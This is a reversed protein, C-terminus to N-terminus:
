EVAHVENFRCCAGILNADNHFRSGAVVARPLGFIDKDYIADTEERITRILLERASIGGGIVIKEPDFICQLNYIFRALDGAYNRIIELMGPDGQEALDFITYGTVENESKKLKKAAKRRLERGGCRVALVSDSHEFRDQNIHVYSFEGAFLHAGRYLKGNQILAGGIGTGLILVAGTECGKLEGAHLEALAASKADNEVSVPVGTCAELQRALPLERVEKLMGGANIVYGKRSDILGPMSIAIGGCGTGHERFLDALTHLFHENNGYPTPCKDKASLTIGDARAYKIETGGVDICFLSM